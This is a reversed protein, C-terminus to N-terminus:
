SCCRLQDRERQSLELVAKLKWLDGSSLLCATYKEIPVLVQM